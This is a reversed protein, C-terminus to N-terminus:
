DRVDSDSAPPSADDPATLVPPGEQTPVVMATGRLSSSASRGVNLLGNPWFAYVLLLFGCMIAGVYQAERPAPE